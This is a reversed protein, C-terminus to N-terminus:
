LVTVTIEYTKSSVGEIIGTGPTSNRGPQYDDERAQVKNYMDLATQLPFRRILKLAFSVRTATM